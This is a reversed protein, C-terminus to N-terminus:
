IEELTDIDIEYIDLERSLGWDSFGDCMIYHKTHEDIFKQHSYPDSIPYPTATIHKVYYGRVERAQGGAFPDSKPIVTMAKYQKPM